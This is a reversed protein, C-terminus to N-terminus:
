TIWKIKINQLTLFAFWQDSVLCGSIGRQTRSYAATHQLCLGFGCLVIRKCSGLNPFSHFFDWHLINETTKGM